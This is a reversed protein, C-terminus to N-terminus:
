NHLSFIRQTNRASRERAVTNAPLLRANAHHLHKLLPTTTHLHIHTALGLFHHRYVIRMQLHPMTSAMPEQLLLINIAPILLIRIITLLRLISPLLITPPVSQISRHLTSATGSINHLSINDQEQIMLTNLSVLHIQPHTLCGTMVLVPLQRCKNITPLVIQIKQHMHTKTMELIGMGQLRHITAETQIM